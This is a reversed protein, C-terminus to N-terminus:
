GASTNTARAVLGSAVPTALSPGQDFADLKIRGGGGPSNLCRWVHRGKPGSGLPDYTTPASWYITKGAITAHGASLLNCRDEDAAPSLVIVTWLLRTSGHIYTVTFWPSDAFPVQNPSENKWSSYRYGTPLSTPLFASPGATKHIAAAPEAPVPGNGSAAPVAALAAVVVV